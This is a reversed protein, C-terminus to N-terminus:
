QLRIAQLVLFVPLLIVGDEKADLKTQQEMYGSVQYVKYKLHAACMMHIFRLSDNQINQLLDNKQKDTGAYIQSNTHTDMLEQIFNM